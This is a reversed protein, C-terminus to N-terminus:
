HRRMTHVKSANVHIRTSESVFGRGDLWIESWTKLVHVWADNREQVSALATQLMYRLAHVRPTAHEQAFLSYIAHKLDLAGRPCARRGNRTVGVVALAPLICWPHSVHLLLSTLYRTSVTVVPWGHFQHRLRVRTAYM